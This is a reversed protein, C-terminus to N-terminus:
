LCYICVGVVRRLGSCDRKITCGVQTATIFAAEYSDCEGYENNVFNGKKVEKMCCDKDTLQYTTENFCAKSTPKCECRPVGSNFDPFGKLFRGGYKWGELTAIYNLDSKLDRGPTTNIRVGKLCVNGADIVFTSNCSGYTECIDCANSAIIQELDKNKPITPQGISGRSTNHTEYMKQLLSDIYSFGM